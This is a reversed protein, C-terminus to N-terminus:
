PRELRESALALVTELASVSVWALVPESELASVRALVPESVPESELTSVWVRSVTEFSVWM